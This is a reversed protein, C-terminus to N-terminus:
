LYQQVRGPPYNQKFVSKGFSGLVLLDAKTQTFDYDCQRPNDLVIKDKTSEVFYFEPMLHFRHEDDLFPLEYEPTEILFHSPIHHRLYDVLKFPSDTSRTILPQLSWIGTLPFIIAMLMLIGAVKGWNPHRSLAAAHCLADYMSVLLYGAWPSALLLAPLAFRHWYVALVYFISWLLLNGLWYLWPLSWGHRRQYLWLGMLGSIFLPHTLLFAGSEPYLRGITFPTFFEHCLLKKQYYFHYLAPQFGGLISAKFALYAALPLAAGLLFLGCSKILTLDVGVISGSSVLWSRSSLSVM